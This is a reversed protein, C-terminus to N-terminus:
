PRIWDPGGGMKRCFAIVADTRAEAGEGFQTDAIEPRWGFGVLLDDGSKFLGGSKKTKRDIKTKSKFDQISTLNGGKRYLKSFASRTSKRCRKM